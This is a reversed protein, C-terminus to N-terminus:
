GEERVGWKEKRRASRHRFGVGASTPASEFSVDDEVFRLDLITGSHLFEVGNCQEYLHLATGPSDTECIAYYYSLPRALTAPSPSTMVGQQSHM